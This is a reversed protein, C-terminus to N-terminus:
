IIKHYPESCNCKSLYFSELQNINNIGNVGPAGTMLYDKGRSGDSNFYILGTLKQYFDILTDITPTDVHTIIAFDKIVCVGFPFDELFMRSNLNIVYKNDSIEKLPAMVSEFAQISKLKNTMQSATKSEYYSVLSKVDDMMDRFFSSQKSLSKCIDQLESDYKLLIESASDNWAEYLPIKDFFATHQNCNKFINYVGVTHLLPNSTGLTLSAFHNVAQCPIDFIDEMLNLLSSGFSHPISSLFLTKKKSIIKACIKNYASVFRAVFPVRQLGLIVVGRSLLDQCSFEIGGYGPVFCLISNCKFYKGSELVFQKRLFAPYTCLVLDASSFALEADDMVTFKFALREINSECDFLYLPTSLKKKTYLFVDNETNFSLLATLALGINGAGVIVIKM